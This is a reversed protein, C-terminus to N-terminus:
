ADDGRLKAVIKDRAEDRRAEEAEAETLEAELEALRGAREFARRELERLQAQVSLPQGEDKQGLPFDGPVTSGHLARLTREELADITEVTTTVAARPAGPKPSDEPM